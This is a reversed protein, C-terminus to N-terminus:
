EFWKSNIFYWLKQLVSIIFKKGVAVRGSSDSM